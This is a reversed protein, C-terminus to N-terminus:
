VALSQDFTESSYDLARCVLVFVYAVKEGEGIHSKHVRRRNRNPHSLVESSAIPYFLDKEVGEPKIQM